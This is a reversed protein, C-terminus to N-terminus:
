GIFEVEDESSSAYCSPNKKPEEEVARKKGNPLAVSVRNIQWSVDWGKKTLEAAMPLISQKDAFTVVETYGTM